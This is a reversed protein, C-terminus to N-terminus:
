INFLIIVSHLMLFTLFLLLTQRINFITISYQYQLRRVTTPSTLKLHVVYGLIWSQRPPDPWFIYKNEKQLFNLEVDHKDILLIQGIYHEPQSFSKNKRKNALSVYVFDSVELKFYNEVVNMSEKIENRQDPDVIETLIDCQLPDKDTEKPEKLQGARQQQLMRGFLSKIQDKNIFKHPKFFKSGDSHKMTRMMLVVKETTIKKRLKKVKYLHTMFLNGTSTHLDQLM